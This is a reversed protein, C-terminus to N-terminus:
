SPDSFGPAMAIPDSCQPTKAQARGKMPPNYSSEVAKLTGLSRVYVILIFVFHRFGTFEVVLFNLSLDMRQSFTKGQKSMYQDNLNFINKRKNRFINLQQKFLAAFM